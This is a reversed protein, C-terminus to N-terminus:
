FFVNSPPFMVHGDSAQEEDEEEEELGRAILDWGGYNGEGPRLLGAMIQDVVRDVLLNGKGEEEEKELLNRGADDDGEAAALLLSALILWPRLLVNTSKLHRRSFLRRQEFRDPSTYRFAGRLAKPTLGAVPGM